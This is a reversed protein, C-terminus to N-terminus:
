YYIAWDVVLMLSSLNAGDLIGLKWIIDLSVQERKILIVYVSIILGCM